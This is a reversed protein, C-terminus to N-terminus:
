HNLLLRSTEFYAPFIFTSFPTPVHGTSRISLSATSLYPPSWFQVAARVQSWLNSPLRLRNYLGCCEAYSFPLNRDRLSGFHRLRNRRFKAYNVVDTVGGCMVVKTPTARRRHDPCMRSKDCRQTEKRREKKRKKAKKAVRGPQM